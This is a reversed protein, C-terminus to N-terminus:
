SGPQGAQQQQLEVHSRVARLDGFSDVVFHPKVDSQALVADDTVGAKCAPWTCM